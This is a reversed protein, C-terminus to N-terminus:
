LGVREAAAQKLSLEKLEKETLPDLEVITYEPVLRTSVRETGDQNKVSKVQQYKRRRLDSLLIKPIHYGNETAEGFPIMKRINGLYKNGATIIEGHLDSKAPNNNYIQVRVLAMHEAVQRQRIVRKRTRPELARIEAVSMALCAEVSYKGKGPDSVNATLPAVSAQTADMVPDPTAANGAPEQTDSLKAEIKARLTNVGINPSHQIGLVKARDKLSDLESPMGDDLDDQNTTDDSM